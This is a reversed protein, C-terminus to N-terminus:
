VKEQYLKSGKELMIESKGAERYVIIDDGTSSILKNNIHLDVIYKSLDLLSKHLKEIRRDRGEITQRLKENEQMLSKLQKRILQQSESQYWRDLLMLKPPPANALVVSLFNNLANRLSDSWKTTFYVAFEPDKEPEDLYPIVYRHYLFHHFVGVYHDVFNGLVCYIQLQNKIIIALEVLSLCSKMLICHFSNVLKPKLM